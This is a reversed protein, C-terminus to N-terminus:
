VPRWELLWYVGQDEIQEFGLRHYLRLAPNFKEVHIRVPQGRKEAESLLDRMLFSGIGSNRHEPLLAIDILRIEDDRRDVYLRGIPKDGLLIVDFHAGDFHQSYFTHQAEFQQRLFSEKQTEDWDVSALEDRRTSAYLECM